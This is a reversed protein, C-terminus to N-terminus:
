RNFEKADYLQHYRHYARKVRMVFNRTESFPIDNINEKSGDWIGEELWRSVHGRGGNYAALAAYANDNFSRYLDRLYWTGMTINVMPDFLKEPAFDDMGMQGAIWTGTQPMIQMLGRAGKKSVAASNFNSEVRIVAAVLQPELDNRDSHEVIIERYHLPYFIRHFYPALAMLLSVAVAFLLLGTLRRAKRGNFM